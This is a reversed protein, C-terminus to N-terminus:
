FPVDSLTRVWVRFPTANEHPRAIMAMKNTKGVYGKFIYSWGDRWVTDGIKYTVPLVEIM